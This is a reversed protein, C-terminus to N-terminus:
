KGCELFIFIFETSKFWKKFFSKQHSKMCSLHTKDIYEYALCWKSGIHMWHCHIGSFRAEELGDVFCTVAKAKCVYRNNIQYSCRWRSKKQSGNGSSESQIYKYNDLILNFKGKQSIVYQPHEIVMETWFHSLQFLTLIVEFIWFEKM